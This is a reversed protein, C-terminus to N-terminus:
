GTSSRCSGPCGLLIGGAMAAFIWLTLYRDLLKLRRPSEAVIPSSLTSL